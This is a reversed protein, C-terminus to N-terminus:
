DYTGPLFRFDGEAAAQLVGERTDYRTLFPRLRDPTVLRLDVYWEPALMAEPRYDRRCYRWRRYRGPLFAALLLARYYLARSLSKRWPFLRSYGKWYLRFPIWKTVAVTDRMKAYLRPTKKQFGQPVRKFNEGCQMPYTRWLGKVALRIWLDVDEWYQFDRWGDVADLAAKPYFGSYTAILAYPPRNELYWRFLRQWDENYVTDLDFMVVIDGRTRQLAVRRGLGRGCRMRVLTFPYGRDRYESLVEWSGDDSFNDTCVLEYDLGRVAALVSELSQRTIPATNYNTTNFSILPKRDGAPPPPLPV